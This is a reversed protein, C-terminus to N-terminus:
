TLPAVVPLPLLSNQALAGGLADLAYEFNVNNKLMTQMTDILFRQTKRYAVPEVRTDLAAQHLYASLELFLGEADEKKVKTTLSLWKEWTVDADLFGYEDLLGYPNESGSLSEGFVLQSRSRITPLVAADDKMCLIFQTYASAEELTKLFANQTEKKATHFDHIAVVAPERSRQVMVAVERIQDISVVTSDPFIQSVAYSPISHRTAMDSIYNEAQQLDRTVFLIPLM